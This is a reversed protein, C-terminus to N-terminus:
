RKIHMGPQIFFCRTVDKTPTKSSCFLLKNSRFYNLTVMQNSLNSLQIKSNPYYLKKRKIKVLQILVLQPTLVSKLLILTLLLPFPEQAGLLM